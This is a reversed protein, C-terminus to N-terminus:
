KGLWLLRKLHWFSIIQFPKKKFSFIFLPEPVTEGHFKKKPKGFEFVFGNYNKFLTM